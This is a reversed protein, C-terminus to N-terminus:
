KQGTPSVDARYYRLPPGHVSLPHAERGSILRTLCNLTPDCCAAATHIPPYAQDDDFIKRRRVAAGPMLGNGGSAGKRGSQDVPVTSETYSRERVGFRLCLRQRVRWTTQLLAVDVIVIVVAMGLCMISMRTRCRPMVGLCSVYGSFLDASSVTALGLICQAYDVASGPRAFPIGMDDRYVREHEVSGTNEDPHIVTM